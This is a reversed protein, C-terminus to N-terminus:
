NLKRVHPNLRKVVKRTPSANQIKCFNSVARKLNSYKELISKGVVEYDQMKNITLRNSIYYHACERILQPYVSM